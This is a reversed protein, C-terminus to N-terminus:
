RRWTALLIFSALKSPPKIKFLLSPLRFAWFFIIRQYLSPLLEDCSLAIPPPPFAINLISCTSYFTPVLATCLLLLSPTLTAYRMQIIILMPQTSSTPLSTQRGIGATIAM